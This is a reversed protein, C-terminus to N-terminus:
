PLSRRPRQGRRYLEGAIYSGPQYSWGPLRVIDTLGLARVRKILSERQQGDGVLFAAPPRPLLALADVLVDPGKDTNFRGTFTLRPTPLGPLPVADLGEVASLGDRLRGDALGISAAWAHAAPGHAFFLSVRPAAQRAQKTHDKGGPWSMQNHESAVLPLDPPAAFAAAWWAGIM